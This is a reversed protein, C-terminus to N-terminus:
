GSTTCSTARDGDSDRGRYLSLIEKGVGEQLRDFLRLLERRDMPGLRGFAEIRSRISTGGIVTCGLKQAEGMTTGSGMFPDFVVLGPLRVPQYFMEM